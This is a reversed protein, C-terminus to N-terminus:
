LFAPYKLSVATGTFTKSRLKREYHLNSPLLQELAILIIGCYQNMGLMVESSGALLYGFHAEKHRWLAM